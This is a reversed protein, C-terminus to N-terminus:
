VSHEGRHCRGCLVILDDPREEGLRGYNLHHVQLRRDDSGCSQCRQGAELKARKAKAIWESSRIYEQYDPRNIPKEAGAMVSVMRLFDIPEAQKPPGPPYIDESIDHQWFVKTSDM